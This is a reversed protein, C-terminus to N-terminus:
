IAPRPPRRSTQCGIDTASSSVKGKGTGTDMDLAPQQQVGRRLKMNEDIYAPYTLTRSFLLPTTSVDANVDLANTKQTFNNARVSRCM